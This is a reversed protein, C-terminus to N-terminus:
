LLGMVSAAVQNFSIGLVGGTRWALAGHLDMDWDYDPWYNFLLLISDNININIKTNRSIFLISLLYVLDMM